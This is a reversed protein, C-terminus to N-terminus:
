VHQDRERRRDPCNLEVGADVLLFGRVDDTKDRELCGALLPFVADDVNEFRGVVLKSLVTVVQQGHMELLSERGDQELYERLPLAEVVEGERRDAALPSEDASGAKWLDDDIRLPYRDAALRDIATRSTRTVKEVPIDPYLAIGHIRHYQTEFVQRRFRCPRQLDVAIGAPEIGRM